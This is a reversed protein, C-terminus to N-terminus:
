DDKEMAHHFSWYGEINMGECYSKEIFDLFYNRFRETLILVDGCENSRLFYRIGFSDEKKTISFGNMDECDEVTHYLSCVDNYDSLDNGDLWAQFDTITSM